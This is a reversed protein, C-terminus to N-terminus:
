QCGPRLDPDSLGCPGPAHGQHAQCRVIAAACALVIAFGLRLGAGRLVAVKPRAVRGPPLGAPASSVLCASCAWAPAWLAQLVWGCTHRLSSLAVCLCRAAARRCTSWASVAWPSGKVACSPLLWLSADRLAPEPGAFATSGIGRCTRPVAPPLGAKRSGAAVRGIASLMWLPPRGAPGGAAALMGSGRGALPLTCGPSHSMARM